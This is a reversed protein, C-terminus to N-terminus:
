LCLGYSLAFAPVAVHCTVHIKARQLTHRTKTPNRVGARPTSVTSNWCPFYRYETVEVLSEERSVSVAEGFIAELACLEEDRADADAANTEDNM